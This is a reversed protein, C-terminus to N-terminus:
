KMGARDKHLVSNDTVPAARVGGREDSDARASIEVENGCLIAAM